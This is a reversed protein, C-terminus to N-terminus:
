GSLVCPQGDITAFSVSQVDAGHGRLVVPDPAPNGMAERAGFVASTTRENFFTNNVGLPDSFTVV